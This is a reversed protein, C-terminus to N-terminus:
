FVIFMFQRLIKFYHCGNNQVQSVIAKVTNPSSMQEQQPSASPLEMIWNWSNAGQIIKTCPTVKCIVHFLNPPIYSGSIAFIGFQYRSRDSHLLTCNQTREPFMDKASMQRKFPVSALNDLSTKYIKWVWYCSDSSKYHPTGNQSSTYTAFM